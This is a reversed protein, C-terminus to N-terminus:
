TLVRRAAEVAAAKSHGVPYIWLIGAVAREEIQEQSLGQATGDKLAKMVVHHVNPDSALVEAEAALYHALSGAKGYSEEQDLGSPRAVISEAM